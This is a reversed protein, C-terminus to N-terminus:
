ADPAPASRGGRRRVSWAQRASRCLDGVGGGVVDCRGEVCGCEPFVSMGANDAAWAPSPNPLTMLSAFVVSLLVAATM